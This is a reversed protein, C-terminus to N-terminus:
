SLQALSRYITRRSVGLETAIAQVTYQKSEYLERAMKTKRPTM